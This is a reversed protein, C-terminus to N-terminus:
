RKGLAQSLMDPDTMPLSCTPGRCLYATAKGDLQTKGFAPHSPALSSDGSPPVVALVMPPAPAQAAARLLADTDPKGRQGIVVLQLTNDLLDRSTLLSAHGFPNRTAEGAFAKFLDEARQRYGDDGTLYFLSVLVAAMSGNGSPTPGDSAQKARIILGEADEAAIFYGGGAKDWHHRDAAGVWAKARDLYQAEGTAAHLALAARAMQAYDDILGRNRAKGARFSHHLRGGAAGLSQVVFDFARRAIALWDAQEFVVAAEALSAIMMGNWDALAKDDLGPRIRGARAQLLIARDKALQAEAADDLRDLTNLRNLINKGEWNGAPSVDYIAKFDKARPGLL